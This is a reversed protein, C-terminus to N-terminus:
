FNLDRVRYFSTLTEEAVEVKRRGITERRWANLSRVGFGAAVAASLATLVNAIASVWDPTLKMEATRERTLSIDMM